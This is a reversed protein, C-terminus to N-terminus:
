QRIFSLHLLLPFRKGPQSIWTNHEHGKGPEVFEYTKKSDIVFPLPSQDVNLRESPLFRGWKEDYRDNPQTRLCRERFTAHWKQLPKVKEKKSKKKSRQKARMKINRRNLFAVIVHKGIVADKDNTLERQISTAKTMLWQFNIRHGKSRANIFKDWLHHYLIKYKTSPRSKKYLKRHSDAAEQFIKEKNKVWKSLLSQSIKYKESIEVQSSKTYQIETIVDAKQSSLYSKRAGKGKGKQNLTKEVQTVLGDVVSKVVDKRLEESLDLSSKKPVASKSKRKGHTLLHTSLGQQNKLKKGCYDCLLNAETPEDPILVKAFKGRHKISKTVGFFGLTKQKKPPSAM